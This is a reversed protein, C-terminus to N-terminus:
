TYQGVPRLEPRDDPPVVILVLSKSTALRPKSSAAM